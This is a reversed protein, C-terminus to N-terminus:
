NRRLAAEIAAQNMKGMARVRQIQEFDKRMQAPDSLAKVEKHFDAFSMGPNPGLADYIKKIEEGQKM